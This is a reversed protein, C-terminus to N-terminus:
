INLKKLINEIFNCFPRVRGDKKNKLTDGKGYAKM